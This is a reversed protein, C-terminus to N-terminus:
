DDLGTMACEEANQLFVLSGLQIVVLDTPWGSFAFDKLFSTNRNSCPVVQVLYLLFERTHCENIGAYHQGYDDESFGFFWVQSHPCRESGKTANSFFNKARHRSSSFFLLNHCFSFSLSLFQVAAFHLLLLPLSSVPPSLPDKATSSVNYLHGRRLPVFIIFCFGRDLFNTVMSAGRSVREFCEVRLVFEHVHVSVYFLLIRRTQHHLARAPLLNKRNLHIILRSSM